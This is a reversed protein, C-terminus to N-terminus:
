KYSKRLDIMTQRVSAAYSLEQDFRYAKMKEVIFPLYIFSRNKVYDNLL